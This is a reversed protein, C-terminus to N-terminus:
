KDVINSTISHDHSLKKDYENCKRTKESTKQKNESQLPSCLQEKKQQHDEKSIFRTYKELLLDKFLKNTGRSVSNSENTPPKM